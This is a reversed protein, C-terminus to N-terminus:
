CETWLFSLVFEVVYQGPTGKFLADLVQDVDYGLMKRSEAVNIMDGSFECIVGITIVRAFALYRSWNTFEPIVCRTYEWATALVEDKMSKPMDINEMDNALDPPYYWRNVVTVEHTAVGNTPSEASEQELHMTTSKSTFNLRPQLSISHTGIKGRPM